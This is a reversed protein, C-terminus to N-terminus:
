FNQIYFELFYTMELQQLIQCHSHQVEEFEWDLLKM